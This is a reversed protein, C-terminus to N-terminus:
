KGTDFGVIIGQETGSGGYFEMIAAFNGTHMDATTDNDFRFYRGYYTSHFVVATGHATFTSDAETGTDETFTYGLGRLEAGSTSTASAGAVGLMGRANNWWITTYTDMDDPITLEYTTHPDITFSGDSGSIKVNRIKDDSDSTENILVHHINATPNYAAWVGHSGGASSGQTGLFCSTGPLSKELQLTLGNTSGSDYDLINGYITDTSSPTQYSFIVVRNITSDYTLSYREQATDAFMLENNGSTIVSNDGTNVKFAKVFNADSDDDGYELATVIAGMDSWYIAIDSGDGQNYTGASTAHITEHTGVSMSPTAGSNTITGFAIRYRNSSDAGSELFVLGMRDNGTDYVPKTHYGAGASSLAVESEWTITVNGSTANLKGLRYTPYDGNGDDGYMVILTDTDPDWALEAGWSRDNNFQQNTITIKNPDVTGTFELTNIKEINADTLTNVKEISALAITNIKDIQNAM